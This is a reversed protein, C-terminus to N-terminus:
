GAAILAEATLRTIRRLPAAQAVPSSASGGFLAAAEGTAAITAAFTAPTRYGLSSHPRATNYDEVWEALAIERPSGIGGAIAHPCM